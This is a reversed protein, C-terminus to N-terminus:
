KDKLSIRKLTLIRGDPLAGKVTIVDSTRSNKIVADTLIKATLYNSLAQKVFTGMSAKM